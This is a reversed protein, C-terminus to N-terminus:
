MLVPIGLAAGRAWATRRQCQPRRTIRALRGRRADLIPFSRSALVRSRSSRTDDLHLVIPPDLIHRATQKLPLLRNEVHDFVDHCLQTPFASESNPQSRRVMSRRRPKARRPHPRRAVTFRPSRTDHNSFRCAHLGDDLHLLIPPRFTASRRNSPSSATWVHHSYLYRALFAAVRPCTSGPGRSPWTARTRGGLLVAARPCVQWGGSM